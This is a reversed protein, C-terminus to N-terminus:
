NLFKGLFNPRLGSYIQWHATDKYHIRLDKGSISIYLPVWSNKQWPIRLIPHLPDRGYVDINLFVRGSDFTTAYCEFVGPIRSVMGKKGPEPSDQVNLYTLFFFESHQPKCGLSLNKESASDRAVGSATFYDTMTVHRSNSNFFETTQTDSTRWLLMVLIIAIVETRRM